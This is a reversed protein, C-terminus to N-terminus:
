IQRLLKAEREFDDLSKANPALTYLLEKLAVRVEDSREALYVRGHEGEHTVRLIRYDGAIAAVGCSECRGDALADGCAVCVRPPHRWASSRKKKGGAAMTPRSGILDTM